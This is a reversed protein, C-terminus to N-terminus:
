SCFGAGPLVTTTRRKRREKAAQKNLEAVPVSLDKDPVGRYWQEVQKNIEQVPVPLDKNRDKRTLRGGLIFFLRMFYKLYVVIQLKKRGSDVQYIICFMSVIFIIWFHLM